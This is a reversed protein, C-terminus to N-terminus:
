NSDQHKENIYERKFFLTNASYDYPIIKKFNVNRNWKYIKFYSEEELFIPHIVKRKRAINIKKKKSKSHSGSQNFFRKFRINRYLLFCLVTFTPIVLIYAFIIIIFNILM